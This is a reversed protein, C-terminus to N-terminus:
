SEGKEEGVCRGASRLLLRPPPRVHVVPADDATGPEVVRSLNLYRSADELKFQIRATSGAAARDRQQVLAQRPTVLVPFRRGLLLREVGDQLETCNGSRSMQPCRLTANGQIQVRAGTPGVAFGSTRLALSLNDRGSSVNPGTRVVFDLAPVRLVFPLAMGQLALGVSAQIHEDTSNLSARLAVGFPPAERDAGTSAEDSCNLPNSFNLVFGALVRSLSNFGLAGQMAVHMAAPSLEPARRLSAFLEAQRTGLSGHEPVIQVAALLKSRPRRRAQELTIEIPSTTLQFARKHASLVDFRLAPVRGWLVFPPRLVFGAHLRMCGCGDCGCSAGEEVGDLRVDQLEFIQPAAAQGAEPCGSPGGGRLTQMIPPMTSLVRQLMCSSRAGDPTGRAYFVVDDGLPVKRM